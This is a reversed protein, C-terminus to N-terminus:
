AAGAGTSWAEIVDQSQVILACYAAMVSICVDHQATDFSACADSALFVNYDRHFADRVATDVCCETTLGGIVLTDIGLARLQRDLVTDQFSSYRAKAVHLDDPGPVIRYLEAGWQGQRCLRHAESNPIGQRDRRLSAARSDLASTTQLTVHVVTVERRHAADILAQARDVAADVRSRDVGARGLVGEPHGFDNQIDITLLAGRAPDLLRGLEARGPEFKKWGAM